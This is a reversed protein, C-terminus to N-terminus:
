VVVPIADDAALVIFVHFDAVDASDKILTLVNDPAMSLINAPANLAVAIAKADDAYGSQYYIVSTEMGFNVANKAKTTFGLANLEDAAASALGPAGKGNIAAVRVEGPPHTIPPPATTTTTTTSSTTSPPDTEGEDGGESDGDGESGESDSGTGTSAASASDGGNDDSGDFGRALLFAGLAIAVIVLVIGRGAAGGGGAQPYGHQPTM